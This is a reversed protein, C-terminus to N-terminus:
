CIKSSKYLLCYLYTQFQQKWIMSMPKGILKKVVSRITCPRSSIELFIRWPELNTPGKELIDGFRFAKCRKEKFRREGQFTSHRPSVQRQWMWLCLRTDLLMTIHLNIYHELMMPVFCLYDSQASAFHRHYMQRM